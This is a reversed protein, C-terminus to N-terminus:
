LCIHMGDVVYLPTNDGTFSRAGRITIQSSAGPMGSSQSIQIGSLKGQLANALDSSAGQTLEAAKVDQSAYGLSKKAKSIGMATVVIEDIQKSDSELRVVINGKAEVEVTKMGVYSIVLDKTSGQLTIKFEGDTNTVTGQSTGKVKVTAGIIPQGDDASFVKGSVSKSQANVLGLGVLFLCTLLFTLKRM